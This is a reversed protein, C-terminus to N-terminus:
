SFKDRSKDWFFQFVHATEKSMRDQGKKLESLERRLEVPGPMKYYQGNPLIVANGPKNWDFAFGDLRSDWTSIGEEQAIRVGDDNLRRRFTTDMGLGKRTGAKGQPEPKKSGNPNLDYTLAEFVNISHGAYTNISRFVDNLENAYTGAEKPTVFLGDFVQLATNRRGAVELKDSMQTIAGNINQSDNAHNLLVTIQSAAKLAGETDGEATRNFLKVFNYTNGKSKIPIREGTKKDIKYEATAHSFTRRSDKDLEYQSKGLPIRFGSMTPINLHFGQENALSAALSLTASLKSVVDFSGSVAEAMYVGLPKSLDKEIDIGAAAFSDVIAPTNVYLEALYNEVAQAIRAAGAGYGFIMVPNKTFKRGLVGGHQQIIHMAQKFKREEAEKLITKFKSNTVDQVFSKLSPPGKKNGWLGGLSNRINEDVMEYVDQLKEGDRWREFMDQSFLRSANAVTTDGSQWASWAMGNTLGDIETLFGTSYSTKGSDIAQQLELAEAIAAISAYGEENGAAEILKVGGEGGLTNLNAQWENINADYMAAADEVGKKDYGFRKMIGAKLIMLDKPSNLNYISDIGAALMSRALKSGQFNGITQDVYLRNNFGYFYDYFFAGGTEAHEMGWKLQQVFESDKIADSVDNIRAAVNLDKTPNGQEDVIRGHKDRKYIFGPRNRASGKSGNGDGKISLFSPGDFLKNAEVNYYLSKLLNVTVKHVKVPTNEQVMLDKLRNTLDGHEMGKIGRLKRSIAVATNEYYEAPKQSTRVHKVSSPILENTLPQLQHALNLGEKTLIIAKVPQGDKNTATTIEFVSNADTKGEEKGLAYGVIHRVFSGAMGYEEKTAKEEGMSTLFMQGINMDHAVSTMVRDDFSPAEYGEDKKQEEELKSQWVNKRAQALVSHLALDSFIRGAEPAQEAISAYSAVYKLVFQAYDDATHNGEEAMKAAIKSQVSPGYLGASISEQLVQQVARGHTNSLEEDPSSPNNFAGEPNDNLKSLHKPQVWPTDVRRGTPSSGDEGYEVYKDSSLTMYKKGLHRAFEQYLHPKEAVDMPSVGRAEAFEQLDEAEQEESLEPDTYANAGAKNRVTEAWKQDESVQAAVRKSDDVISPGVLGTGIDEQVAADYQDDIKGLIDGSAEETLPGVNMLQSLKLLSGTLPGKEKSDRAKKSVVTAYSM